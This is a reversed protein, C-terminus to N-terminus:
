KAFGGRARGRRRDYLLLLFGQSAFACILGAFWLLVTPWGAEGPNMFFYPHFNIREGITVFVAWYAGPFVMGWMIHRRKLLGKEEFAFYNILALAMALVHTSFNVWTSFFMPAGGVPTLLFNYVIGTFTTALIVTVSIYQRIRSGKGLALMILFVVALLLNSQYTFTLLARFHIPGSGAIGPLLHIQGRGTLGLYLGFMIVAASLALFAKHVREKKTLSM